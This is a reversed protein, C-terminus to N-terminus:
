MPAIAPLQVTGITPHYRSTGPAEVAGGFYRHGRDLSSGDCKEVLLKPSGSVSHPLTRAYGAPEPRLLRLGSIKKGVMSIEIDPVGGFANRRAMQGLALHHRYQDKPDALRAHTLRQCRGRGDTRRRDRRRSVLGAESVPFEAIRGITEPRARLRAPSPAAKHKRSAATATDAACPLLPERRLHRWHRANHDQMAGLEYLLLVNWRRRSQRRQLLDRVM